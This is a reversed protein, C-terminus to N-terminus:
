LSAEDRVQWSRLVKTWLANSYTTPINPGQTISHIGSITEAIVDETAYMVLLHNVGEAYAFLSWDEKNWKSLISFKFQLRSSFRPTWAIKMLHHIMLMAAGESVERRVWANKLTKWFSLTSIPDSAQLVQDSM